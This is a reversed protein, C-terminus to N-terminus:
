IDDDMDDIYEDDDDDGDDATVVDDVDVAVATAAGGGSAALNALNIKQQVRPTFGALAAEYASQLDSSSAREDDNLERLKGEVIDRRFEVFQNRKQHFLYLTDPNGTSLAEDRVVATSKAGAELYGCWLLKSNM